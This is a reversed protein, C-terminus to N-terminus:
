LSDMEIQISALRRKHNRDTKVYGGGTIFFLM